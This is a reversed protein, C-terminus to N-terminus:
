VNNCKASYTLIGIEMAFVFCVATLIGELM